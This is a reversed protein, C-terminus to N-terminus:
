NTLEMFFPFFLGFILVSIINQNLINSVVRPSCDDCIIQLHAFDVFHIGSLWNCSTDKGGFRVLIGFVDTLKNQIFIPEIDM